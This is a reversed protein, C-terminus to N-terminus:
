GVGSRFRVNRCWCLRTPRLVRASTPTSSAYARLEPISPVRPHGHCYTPQLLQCSADERRRTSTTEAASARLLTAGFQRGMVTVPPNGFFAFLTNRSNSPQAFLSKMEIAVESRLIPIAGFSPTRPRLGVLELRRTSSRDQGPRCDGGRRKPPRHRAAESASFRLRV